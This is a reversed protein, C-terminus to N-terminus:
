AVVGLAQAQADQAAQAAAAAHGLMEMELADLDADPAIRGGAQWAELLLRPPLGADKVAQVYAAMTQPDMAVNEFDRNLEFMPANANDIGRYWAHYMMAQNVCDDIGQAATSLSANEATADLRKAQATEAQRTDPALFSMGLQGMQREKTEISKELPAFAETPPAVWKFDPQPGNPQVQMHVVVLPGLKLSAKSLGNAQAAPDVLDGIVVPQAYAAVMQAFGLDTSKRWHGLNKYAVGLLPISSTFPADSRGTYAVAVPLFDAVQGASNRFFGSTLITFDDPRAAAGMVSAKKEYLTWSAQGEMLRLVRYRERTAVGYLGAQVQTPEHFVVQSLQTRGGVTDVLWSISSLRSYASWVPQLGLAAENGAHVVVGPDQPQPTHSVVIAAVGDRMAIETFRKVFVYGANGMGDINEWDTKIDAEGGNWEIKPPRAFLMGVGASLVRSTGEYVEECKSRILYIKDDEDTWQRIYTSAKAHMTPTGGLIDAMLQLQPMIATLEPRVYNPLDQANQDISM